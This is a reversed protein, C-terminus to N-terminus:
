ASLALPLQQAFTALGLLGMAAISVLVAGDLRSRIPFRFLFPFSM